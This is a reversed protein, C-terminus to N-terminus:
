SRKPGSWVDTHHRSSSVLRSPKPDISISLRSTLVSVVIIWM